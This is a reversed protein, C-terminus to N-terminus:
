KFKKLMENATSELVPIHNQCIDFVVEPNVTDYHHSILDRMRIIKEWEVTKYQKLYDSDYKDINKILEGIVQLRMAISDLLTVGAPTTMFEDADKINEFRKQVIKISELVSEINDRIFDNHM